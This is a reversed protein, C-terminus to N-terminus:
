DKASEENYQFHYKVYSADAARLRDSGTLKIRIQNPKLNPNTVEQMVFTEKDVIEPAPQFKNGTLEKVLAFQSKVVQGRALLEKKVEDVKELDAKKTCKKRQEDVKALKEKIGKFEDEIFENVLQIRRLREEESYGLIQLPKIAGALALDEKELNTGGEVKKILKKLTEARSLLDSSATKNRTTNM